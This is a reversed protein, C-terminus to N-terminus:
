KRKSTIYDIDNLYIGNINLSAGFNKERKKSIAFFFIDVNFRM